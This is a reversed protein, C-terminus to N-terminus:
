RRSFVAATSSLSIISSLDRDQQARRRPGRDVAPGHRRRHDHDREGRRRSWAGCRTPDFHPLAGGQPRREPGDRGVPHRRAHAIPLFTLQLGLAKGREVLDQPAEAKNGTLLDIGGGLAFLVDAHRWVVGKPMGTTGGTYLIYRDDGSRPGFDREPSQGEMADEFDGIVLRHSLDPLSAVVGDVRDTFAADHM